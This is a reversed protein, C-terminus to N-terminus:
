KKSASKTQQGPFLANPPPNDQNGTWKDNEFWSMKGDPHIVAPLDGDRHFEGHQYWFQSGNDWVRAPLDGDRHIKDHQYWAQEGCAWVVAPLDGDRHLTNDSDKWEVFGENKYPAHKFAEKVEFQTLPQTSGPETKQRKLKKKKKAKENKENKEDSPM